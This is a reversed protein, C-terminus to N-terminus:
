EAEKKYYRFYVYIGVGVIALIGVAIIVWQWWELPTPPVTPEPPVTPSPSIEPTPTIQGQEGSQVGVGLLEIRVDNFDEWWDWNFLGWGAQLFTKKNSGEFTKEQGTVLVIDEDIATPTPSEIVKGDVSSHKFSRKIYTAKIRIYAVNVGDIIPYCKITARSVQGIDSTGVEITSPSITLVSGSRAVVFRGIDITTERTAAM